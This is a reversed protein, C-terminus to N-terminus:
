GGPMCVWDFEVCKQTVTHVCIEERFHEDIRPIFLSSAVGSRRHRRNLGDNHLRLRLKAVILTPKLTQHEDQPSQSPHNYPDYMPSKIGPSQPEHEM